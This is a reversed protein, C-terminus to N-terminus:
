HTVSDTIAPWIKAVLASYARIKNDDNFNVKKLLNVSRDLFVKNNGVSTVDPDLVAEAMYIVAALIEGEFPAGADVKDLAVKFNYTSPQIGRSSNRNKMVLSQFTFLIGANILIRCFYRM